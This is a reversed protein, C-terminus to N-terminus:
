LYLILNDADKDRGFGHILLQYFNPDNCLFHYVSNSLPAEIRDPFISTTKPLLRNNSQHPYASNSHLIRAADSRMEYQKGYYEYQADRRNMWVKKYLLHIMLDEAEWAVDVFWRSPGKAHFSYEHM